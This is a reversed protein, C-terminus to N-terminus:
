APTLMMALQKNKLRNRRTDGLFLDVAFGARISPLRVSSTAGNAKRDALNM